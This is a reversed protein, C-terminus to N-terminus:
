QPVSRIQQEVINKLSCNELVETGTQTLYFPTKVPIDPDRLDISVERISPASPIAEHKTEHNGNVRDSSFYSITIATPEGTPTNPITNLDSEISDGSYSLSEEIIKAEAEKDIRERRAGIIFYHIFAQVVVLSIWALTSASIELM